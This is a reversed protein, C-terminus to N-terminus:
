EAKKNKKAKAKSKQGLLPDTQHDKDATWGHMEWPELFKGGTPTNGFEVESGDHVQRGKSLNPDLITKVHYWHNIAVGRANWYPEMREPQVNFDSYMAKSCLDIQVKEGKRLKEIAEPSM